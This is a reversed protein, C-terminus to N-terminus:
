IWALGVGTFVAPVTDDSPIGETAAAWGGERPAPALSTLTHSQRRLGRPNVTVGEQRWAFDVPFSQAIRPCLNYNCLSRGHVTADPETHDCTADTHLRDGVSHHCLASPGM